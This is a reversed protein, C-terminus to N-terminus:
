IKHGEFVFLMNSPWADAHWGHWCTRLRKQRDATLFRREQLPISTDKCLNIIKGSYNRLLHNSCEIKQVQYNPYPRSEFIKKYTSADGDAILTGYIVNQRALSTKFGEVIVSQEMSTSSGTHNKFCKHSAPLVSKVAARACVVCYKNKVGIYLVKGTRYGIIDAVGSAASYNTQYSRESWCCDAIVTLVPIGDKVDGCSIAKSTEEQAAAQMSNEAALQWWTAIEDHCKEYTFQTITLLDISALLENLNSKGSGIMLAGTVAGQNVDMKAASSQTSFLQFQMNCMNCLFTFSSKLSDKREKIINLNDFTCGTATNHNNLTKIQDIFFQIDIIRRGEIVVSTEFPVEAELIQFNFCM